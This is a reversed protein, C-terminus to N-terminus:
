FSGVQKGHLGKLRAEDDNSGELLLLLPSDFEISAMETPGMQGGFLKM